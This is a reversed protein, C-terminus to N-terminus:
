KSPLEEFWDAWYELHIRHAWHMLVFMQLTHIAPIAENTFNSPNEGDPTLDRIARMVELISDAARQEKENLKVDLM